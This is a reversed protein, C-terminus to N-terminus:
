INLKGSIKPTKRRAEKEKAMQLKDSFDNFNQRLAEWLNGSPNELIATTGELFRSGFLHTFHIKTEWTMLGANM